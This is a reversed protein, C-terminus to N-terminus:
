HFSVYKDTWNQPPVVDNPQLLIDFSGDAAGKGYVLTGDPFTLNSRDGIAYRNLKNETFFLRGNYATLSWFGGSIPPRGSFHFLVAQNPGVELLDHVPYVTQEATLAVYVELATKYRAQYYSHFNGQIQPAPATWDNGLHLTYGPQSDLAIISANAAAMAETLNTNPPQRFIKTTFDIGADQLVQRVWSRDQVVEPENYPALAAALGLVVRGLSNNSSPIFEPKLFLSLDLKPARSVTSRPILKINLQDQLNRVTNVDEPGGKIVIRALAIGYPTPINLYAKYGDGIGQTQVGINAQNYRVLYKGATSNTLSGINAVNNGYRSM